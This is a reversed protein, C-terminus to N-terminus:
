GMSATMASACVIREDTSPRRVSQDFRDSEFGGGRDDLNRGAFGDARGDCGGNWRRLGALRLGTPEGDGSGVVLGGDFGLHGDLLSGGRHLQAEVGGHDLGAINWLAFAHQDDVITPSTRVSLYALACYRARATTAIPSPRPGSSGPGACRARARRAPTTATDPPSGTRPCSTVLSRRTGPCWRAGSRRPGPM